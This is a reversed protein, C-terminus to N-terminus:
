RESSIRQREKQKPEAGPDRAGCAYEQRLAKITGKSAEYTLTIRDRM